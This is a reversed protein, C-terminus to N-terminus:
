RGGYGFSNSLVAQLARKNKPVTYHRDTEGANVIGQTSRQINRLNNQRARLSSVNKDFIEILARKKDSCSFVIDNQIFISRLEKITLSKPDFGKALYEVPDPM